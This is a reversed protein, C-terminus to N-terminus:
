CVQEGLDLCVCDKRSCMGTNLSRKHHRATHFRLASMEEVRAPIQVVRNEVDPCLNVPCLDRTRAGDDGGNM